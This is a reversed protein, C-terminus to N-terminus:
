FNQTLHTFDNVTKPYASSICTLCTMNAKCINQVAILNLSRVMWFLTENAFDEYEEITSLVSFILCVLVVMFRFSSSCVSFNLFLVVRRIFFSAASTFLRPLSVTQFTHFKHFYKAPHFYSHILFHLAATMMRELFALPAALTSSKDGLRAATHLAQEEEGLHTWPYYPLFASKEVM